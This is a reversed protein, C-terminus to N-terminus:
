LLRTVAFAISSSLCALSPFIARVFEQALARPRRWDDKTGHSDACDRAGDIRRHPEPSMADRILFAKSWYESAVVRGHGQYWYLVLQRDLGKQVVYRNVTIDRGAGDANPSTAATRAVGAGLRRGAPLEAALSDHRGAAPQRLLGHLTRRAAGTPDTTSARCTTTSASSKWSTRRRAAPRRRGAVDGITMPFAAFTTRTSRASRVNRANALFVRPPRWCRASCSPAPSRAAEHPRRRRRRCSRSAHRCSASCCASCRRADDPVRRRVRGLRLIRPLVRRRRRRRLLAGGRRRGRRAARQRSDGGSDGLARDGRAGLRRPDVFYGFVIGLTLLSVLSRIGSCAEAVELTANALILVNGERLVPIDLASITYEGVHSALLQLPFAIQNFIIAPLPIM